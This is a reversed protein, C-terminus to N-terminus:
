TKPRARHVSAIVSDDAPNVVDILPGSGRVARGDIWHSPAPFPVDHTENM